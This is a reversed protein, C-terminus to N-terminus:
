HQTPLQQRDPLGGLPLLTFRLDLGLTPSVTNENGGSIQKGMLDFQPLFIRYQTQFAFWPTFDLRESLRVGIEGRLSGYSLARIAPDTDEKQLRLQTALEYSLRPRLAFTSIPLLKELDLRLRAFTKGTPRAGGASSFPLTREVSLRQGFALPGVPSRHRLLVGPVVEAVSELGPESTANRSALRATAGWSWQASWFHEYALRLQREDLGLWQGPDQNDTLRQGRLGLLLYDGNKLGLELQIEPQLALNTVARNTQAQALPAALVLLALFLQKM